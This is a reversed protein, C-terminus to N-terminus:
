NASGLHKTLVLISGSFHLLENTKHGKDETHSM